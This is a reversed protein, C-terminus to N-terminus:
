RNGLDLQERRPRRVLDHAVVHQRILLQYRRQRRMAKQRALDDLAGLQQRKAERVRRELSRLTQTADYLREDRKTWASARTTKTVGPFYAVLTHRCNHVLMSGALYAGTTTQLDFAHGEFRNWEIHILEDPEVGAALGSLIEPVTEADAARRDQPAQAGALYDDTLSRGVPSGVGLRGHLSACASSRADPQVDARPLALERRQQVRQADLVPLLRRDAVVVEVEGQCFHGDGHLDDSAIAVTTKGGRAALADLEDQITPQVENLDKHPGPSDTGHGDPATFVHMGKRLAKAPLWGTTTLVPHNPSVALQVGRATTMNVSPGEYWAKVGNEVEGLVRVAHDGLIANPHFLGADRAEDVTARVTFTVQEFSVASTTTVSGPSSGLVAGEWPRCLPCPHGDSPVTFYHIGVATMRDQHAQNYARQVATRTAMEVYSSLTWRRGATDTFGTVGKGMLENWAARQATAPTLGERGIVLRVAADAVAAQYADDAFRLIGFAARDLMGALELGIANAAALGHASADVSRLLYLDALRFDSRVAQQLERFASATGHLAAEEAIRRALPTANLRLETAVKQAVSRMESLMALQAIAGPDRIGKRAAAAISSILQQEARAFLAVIEAGMADVVLPLAAGAPQTM